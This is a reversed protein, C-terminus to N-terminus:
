IDFRIKIRKRLIKCVSTRIFCDEVIGNNHPPIGDGNAKWTFVKVWKIYTPTVEPDYKSIVHTSHYASNAITVGEVICEQCGKIHIPSFTFLEEEPADSFHPHPIKDGSITGHGYLHINHGDHDDNNSFTGYIITDGPIYYSKNAHVKFGRGIDHIGPLFYLTTWSGESPPLEGPSVTLVSEAEPDPKAIFPNAFVTVTHIPPGDYYHNTNPIHGTDQDDMQGNIDVTFLVPKNITIIAEGNKVICDKASKKPHVVAKLIPDGTLKTIKVDLSQGEQMEFNVYTNTWGDLLEGMGTTNCMKNDTCETLFNFPELWVNSTTHKVSVKYHPSEDLGPIRPYVNLKDNLCSVVILSKISLLLLVKSNM